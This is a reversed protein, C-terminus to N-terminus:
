RAYLEFENASTRQGQLTQYYLVVPVYSLRERPNKLSLRLFFDPPNKEEWRCIELTADM